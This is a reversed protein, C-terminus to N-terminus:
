YSGTSYTGAAIVKCEAATNEFVVDGEIVVGDEFTVLGNVKLSDCKILSPVGLPELADVLKYEGSLSIDPPVGNREARLRVQGDELVEYADSRLALLDATTKVPAFRSRPVEVALAGEFCEIASGMAIELQFVPTSSSDRPDVTKKNKIMPLPLAGKDANLQAKLKELNLWLSNTNFYLHKDINQFEDLDDDSCQAVERLLLRGDSKRKALHGGKKDAATRRTVEMMFPAGSEAFYALLAPDLIAGLNDSNSVFAYKVGETLLKDLWGSGVLAPYLDGHGPPCWEQEPDAQWEAPKLTAADIKPVMNQMMEVEDASSLGQAEYRKLHALTDESTSFSNMLLLRVKQGSKERLSLTQRVMLDLFNVGERVSLLSKPGQLGMGTGLGGNLKLVCVEGLLKSGDGAELADSKPLDASPEISDEPIMGTEDRLLAEYNRKFVAVPADGMGAARMKIEFADFESM